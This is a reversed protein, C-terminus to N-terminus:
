LAYVRRGHVATLTNGKNMYQKASFYIIHSIIPNFNFSEILMCEYQPAMNTQDFYDFGTPSLLYPRKVSRAAQPRGCIVGDDHHEKIVQFRPNGVISAVWKWFM